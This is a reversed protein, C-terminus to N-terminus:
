GSILQLITPRGGKLIAKYVQIATVAKPPINDFGSKLIAFEATDSVGKKCSINDLLWFM